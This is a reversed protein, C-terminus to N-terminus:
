FGRQNRKQENERDQRLIELVANPTFVVGHKLGQLRESSQGKISDLIVTRPQPLDKSPFCNLVTLTQEWDVALAAPM